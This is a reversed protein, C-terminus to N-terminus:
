RPPFIEDIVAQERVADDICGSGDATAGEITTGEVEGVTWPPMIKVAAEASQRLIDDVAADGTTAWSWDRRPRPYGFRRLGVVTGVYLNGGRLTVFADTSRCRSTPRGGEVHLTVPVIM